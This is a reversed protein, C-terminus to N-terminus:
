TPCINVKGQTVCAKVQSSKHFLKSSKLTSVKARAAHRHAGSAEEVEAILLEVDSPM